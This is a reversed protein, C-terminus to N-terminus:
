FNMVLYLSHPLSHSLSYSSLAKSSIVEGDERTENTGQSYYFYLSSETSISFYKSFSYRLGIIPGAGVGFIEKKNELERNQFIGNSDIFFFTTTSQDISYSPLIDGGLVLQLKNYITKRREFGLGVFIESSKTTLIQGQNDISEEKNTLNGGFHARFLNKESGKKVFFTFNGILGSPNQAFLNRLLQTSNLGVEWHTDKQKGQAFSLLPLLCFILLFINKM